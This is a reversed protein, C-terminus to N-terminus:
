RWHKGCVSDLLDEGQARGPHRNAGDGPLEAV